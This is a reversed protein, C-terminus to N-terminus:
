LPSHRFKQVMSHLGMKRDFEVDMTTMSLISGLWGSSYNSRGTTIPVIEIKGHRRDVRRRHSAWVFGWCWIRLRRTASAYTNGCQVVLASVGSFFAQNNIQWAALWYGLV